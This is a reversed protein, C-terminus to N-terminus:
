FIDPSPHDRDLEIESYRHLTEDFWDKGFWHRGLLFLMLLTKSTTGKIGNPIRSSLVDKSPGRESVEMKILSEIAEQNSKPVFLFDTFEWRDEAEAIREEIDRNSLSVEAISFISPNYHTAQRVDEFVGFSRIAEVSEALNVEEDIERLVIARTPKMEDNHSSDRDRELYGSGPFSLRPGTGISNPKVGMLVANEGVIAVFSSLVRIQRLHREEAATLEYKSVFDHNQLFLRRVLYDRFRSPGLILRRERQSAEVLNVFSGDFLNPNDESVREWVEQFKKELSSPLAYKLSPDYDLEIDAVDVGRPGYDSWQCFEPM